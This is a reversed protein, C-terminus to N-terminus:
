SSKGVPNKGLWFFEILTRSRLDFMRLLNSEVSLKTITLSIACIVYSLLFVHPFVMVWRKFTLDM